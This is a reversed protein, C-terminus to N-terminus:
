IDSSFTGVAEQPVALFVSDGEQPVFTNGNPLSIELDEAPRGAADTGNLVKLFVARGNRQPVVSSFRASIANAPTTAGGLSVSMPKLRDPRLYFEVQTGPVLGNRLPAQLTWGNWRICMSATAVDLSEVQGRFLNTMGAFEAVARTAPCDLIEAMAGVQQLRGDVMVAARRSLSLAEDFDHTVHLVTVPFRAHMSKMEAWLKKRLGTDVAAYPEDLLLLNPRTVLARALACRQREGGSLNLPKRDLLPGIRLIDVLANFHARADADLKKQVRLPFLINEAVTLFPFLVYDQPVYGLGRSEPGAGTIDRGGAVIRGRDIKRLGCICELLMTKGCGTPGLLAFYEGPEIALDIEGLRFRGATCALRELRIV